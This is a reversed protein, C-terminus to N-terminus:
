VNEQDSDVVANSKKGRQLRKGSHQDHKEISGPQLLQAKETLKRAHKPRQEHSLVSDTSTCKRKHNTLSVLTDGNTASPQPQPCPTHSKLHTLPCDSSNVPLHPPAPSVLCQSTYTTSSAASPSTLLYENSLEVISVTLAFLRIWCIMQLHPSMPPNMSPVVPPRRLHLPNMSPVVPLRQPHLPTSMLSM